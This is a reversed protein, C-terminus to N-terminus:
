RVLEIYSLDESVGAVYRLRTTTGFAVMLDALKRRYRGYATGGAHAALLTRLSADANRVIRDRQTPSLGRFAALLNVIGPLEAQHYSHIVILNM